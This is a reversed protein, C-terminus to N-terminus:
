KKIWNIMMNVWLVLTFIALGTIFYWQYQTHDAVHGIYQTLTENIKSQTEMVKLQTQMVSVTASTFEDLM